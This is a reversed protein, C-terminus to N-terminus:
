VVTITRGQGQFVLLVVHKRRM